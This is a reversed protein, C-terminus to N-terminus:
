TSSFKQYERIGIRIRKGKDKRFFVYFTRLHCTDWQMVAVVGPIRKWAVKATHLIWSSIRWHQGTCTKQTLRRTITCRTTRFSKSLARLVLPSSSIVFYLRESTPHRTKKVALPHKKRTCRSPHNRPKFGTYFGHCLHRLVFLSGCELSPCQNKFHSRRCVNLSVITLLTIAYM